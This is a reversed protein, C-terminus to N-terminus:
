DKQQLESDKIDLARSLIIKIREIEICQSIVCQAQWAEDATFAPNTVLSQFLREKEEDLAKNITQKITDLIM